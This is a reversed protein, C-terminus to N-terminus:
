PCRVLDVACSLEGHGRWQFEVADDALRCKDVWSLTSGASFARGPAADLDIREEIPSVISFGAVRRVIIEALSPRFAVYQRLSGNGMNRTFGGNRICLSTDAAGAPRTLTLDSRFTPVLFAGQRGRVAHLFQRLLWCQAATVCQWVHRQRILNEDSNSVVAFPGTGADLLAVDPDHTERHSDGDLYSPSILVELGDYVLSAVHGTVAANDIVLWTMEVLAAGGILRQKAAMDLVYGRRLPVIWKDGLFDNALDTGLTLASGTRSAIKIIESHDPQWVLGYSDDRFDAYRTDLEIRDTGAPLASTHWQAQPWLPVPWTRKLWADTVADFAAVEEDSALLVTTRFQSRPIGGHRAIRQETRNHSELIETNFLLTEVVPWTWPWYAPAFDVGSPRVVMSSVASITCPEGAPEGWEEFWYDDATTSWTAGGNDSGVRTGGGYSGVMQFLAHAWYADAGGTMWIVIAYPLGAEVLVGPTFPIEVVEGPWSTSMTSYDITTSVLATGTPKGASTAFIGCYLTGYLSPSSRYMRLKVMTLVHAVQPTFTQGARFTGGGSAGMASDYPANYSEYLQAM